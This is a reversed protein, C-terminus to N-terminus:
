YVALLIYISTVLCFLPKILMGLYTCIMDSRETFRQSFASKCTENTSIINCQQGSFCTDDQCYFGSPYNVCSGYYCANESDCENFDSVYQLKLHLIILKYILKIEVFFICAYM